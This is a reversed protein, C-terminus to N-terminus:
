EGTPVQDGYVFRLTVGVQGGLDMKEVYGRSRGQTKLFFMLLVRDGAKIGKKLEDEAWDIVEERADRVAAAFDKDVEIWLYYARRSVQAKRCSRSVNCAVTLDESKFAALFAKKKVATNNRENSNV